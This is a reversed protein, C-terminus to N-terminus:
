NCWQKCVLKWADNSDNRKVEEWGNVIPNTVDIVHDNVDYTCRYYKGNTYKVVDGALYASNEDWMEQVKQWHQKAGSEGPLADAGSNYNSVCLYIVGNVKVFDGPGYTGDTKRNVTNYMIESDYDKILSKDVNILKDAVTGTIKTTIDENDNTEDDILGGFSCNSYLGTEERLLDVTDYGETWYSSNGPTLGSIGLNGTKKIVQYFKSQYKVVDGYFYTNYVTYNEDIKKWYGRVNDTPKLVSGTTFNVLARYWTKVEGQGVYVFDGLNYPIGDRYEGKDNLDSKCKIEQGVTEINENSPIDEIKIDNNVSLKGKKYYIKFISEEGSLNYNKNEKFGKDETDGKQDLDYKMNILQITSRTNYTKRNNYETALSIDICYGSYTKAKLIINRARYATENYLFEDNHTLNYNGNVDQKVAIWQWEDGDPKEEQVKVESAYLLENRIYKIMADVMQKDLTDNSEQSFFGMSNLLLTSSILLVISTIFLTVIVEILTFGFRKKKM